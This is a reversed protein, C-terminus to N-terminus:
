RWRPPRPPPAAPPRPHAGPQSPPAPCPQPSPPSGPSRETSSRHLAPPPPGPPRAAGSSRAEVKKTKKKGGGVRCLEQGLRAHRERELQRQVRGCGLAGLLSGLGLVAGGRGRGRARAVWTLARGTTPQRGAIQSGERGREKHRGGGQRCRAQQGGRGRRRRKRLRRRRRRSSGEGHVRGARGATCRGARDPCHASGGGGGDAGPAAALLLLANHLPQVELAGERRPRHLKRQNRAQGRARTRCAGAAGARGWRGQRGRGRRRVTRGAKRGAPPVLLLRGAVRRGLRHRRRHAPLQPAAAPRGALRGAGGLLHTPAQCSGAHALPRARRVRRAHKHAPQAAARACWRLEASAGTGTGLAGRSGGRSHAAGRAASHRLLNLGLALGLDGGRGGGWADLQGCARWRGRKGVTERRGRM